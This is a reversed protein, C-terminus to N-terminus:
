LDKEMSQGREGFTRKIHFQREHFTTEMVPRKEDIKKEIRLNYEM